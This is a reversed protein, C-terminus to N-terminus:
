FQGGNNKRAIVIESQKKQEEKIRLLNNGTIGIRQLRKGNLPDIKDGVERAVPDDDLKMKESAKKRSIM